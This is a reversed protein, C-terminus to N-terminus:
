LETRKEHTEGTLYFPAASAQSLTANSHVMQMPYRGTSKVKFVRNTNTM